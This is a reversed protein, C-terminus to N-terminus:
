GAGEHQDQALGGLMAMAVGIAIQQPHKGLGIDGIPCAIRAIQAPSHGLQALRKRFRAWKTASGILGARAFPQSLVAHCLDLDIQHDYTLILHEANPPAHQTADQPQVAVLPAVNNHAIDPFRSPATDVWTIATDPLPALVDVLARGVHGAGYIWIPRQRATAGEVLWGNNWYFSDTDPANGTSPGVQRAYPMTQPLTKADFVETVLTVSGGCCQGLAPGLPITRMLAQKTQARALKTAEFELSGGGITGIQGHDWVFMATGANRPTSGATNAIVIRAVKGYVAILDRLKDIDFTM